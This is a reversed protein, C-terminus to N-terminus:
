ALNQFPSSPFIFDEMWIPHRSRAIDRYTNIIGGIFLLVESGAGDSPLGEWKGRYEHGYEADVICIARIPPVPTGGSDVPIDGSTECFQKYQASAFKRKTRRAFAFLLCRARYSNVNKRSFSLQGINLAHKHSAKVDDLTLTSKVEIVQLCADIPFIGLGESLMMPPALSRDFLIIDTQQSLNRKYDILKGTGIGIDAPLLPRFLERVLIERIEGLIGPHNINRVAQAMALAAQV